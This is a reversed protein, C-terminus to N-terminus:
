VKIFNAVALNNPKESLHLQDLPINLLDFIELYASCYQPSILSKLFNFINYRFNFRIYYKM